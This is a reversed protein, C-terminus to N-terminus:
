KVSKLAKALMDRMDGIASEIGTMRAELTGIKEEREQEKAYDPNLDRRIKDCGALVNEHYKVSDLIGRSTRMMAEVEGSMLERTESVVMGNSGFNAISLNSPLQKFEMKEGGVDVNVDVTTEVGFQNPNMGGYKPVPQSVSIVQGVKLVPNEGKQLIYFLSQERLASFM